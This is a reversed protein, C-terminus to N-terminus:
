GPATGQGNAPLAHRPPGPSHVVGGGGGGGPGVRGLILGGAAPGGTWPTLSLGASAITFVLFGLKYMRGRGFIDGIRGLTVVLVATVVLYGMLMWLLYGINGPLLPNLKIGRFIAPLLSLGSSGPLM